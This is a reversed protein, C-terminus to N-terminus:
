QPVGQAKWIVIKHLQFYKDIKDTVLSHLSFVTDIVRNIQMRGSDCAREVEM